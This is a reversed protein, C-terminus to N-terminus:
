IVQQIFYFPVSTATNAPIDLDVVTGFVYRTNPAHIQGSVEM